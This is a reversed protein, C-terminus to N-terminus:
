RKKAIEPPTMVNPPETVLNRTLTTGESVAEVNIYNKELRSYSSSYIKVKSSKKIKDKKTM